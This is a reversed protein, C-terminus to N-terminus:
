VPLKKEQGRFPAGEKESYHPKCFFLEGQRGALSVPIGCFAFVYTLRDSARPFYYVAGKGRTPDVSVIRSRTSPTASPEITRKTPYTACCHLRLSSGCGRWPLSGKDKGRELVTKTAIHRPM